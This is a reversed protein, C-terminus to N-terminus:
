RDAWVSSVPKSYLDFKARATVRDSTIDVAPGFADHDHWYRMWELSLSLPGGVKVEIFPGFGWGDIHGGSAYAREFATRVGVLTSKNPLVGASAGISTSYDIGLTDKLDGLMRDYSADVGLVLVGFQHRYYVSVGPAQGTMSLNVPAGFDASGNLLSGHVDVGFGTWSSVADVPAVATPKAAQKTPITEAKVPNFVALTIATIAALLVIFLWTKRDRLNFTM